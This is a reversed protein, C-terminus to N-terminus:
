AARSGIETGNADRITESTHGASLAWRLAEAKLRPSAVKATRDPMHREAHYARMMAVLPEYGTDFLRGRLSGALSDNGGDHMLADELYVAAEIFDKHLAVPGVLPAILPVIRAFAEPKTQWLKRITALPISECELTDVFAQACGALAGFSGGAFLEADHMAATSLPKRYRQLKVFVEAAHQPGDFDFLIGPVMDVSPVLRATELRHRGDVVYYDPSRYELYLVGFLFWDFERAYRRVRSEDLDRQYEPVKIDGKRLEM